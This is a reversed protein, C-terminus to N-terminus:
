TAAVDSPLGGIPRVRALWLTLSGCALGLGCGLPILESMDRADITSQQAVLIVLTTPVVLAAVGAWMLFRRTALQDVDRGREAFGLLVAFLVGGIAGAATFPIGLRVVDSWGFHFHTVREGWLIHYAGYGMGGVAWVAAWVTTLIFSARIRRRIM